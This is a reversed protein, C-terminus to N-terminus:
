ESYAAFVEAGTMKKTDNSFEYFTPKEDIFIQHDFELQGIDDFIGVPVIYQGSQKLHYFLHTGCQHCFGREAWESSAFRTINEQGEFAVLTECDVGLFPGGSWRRCMRCHCAGVEHHCKEATLTVSGCLCKGQAKTINSM